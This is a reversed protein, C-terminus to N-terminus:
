DGMSKSSFDSFAHFMLNKAVYVFDEHALAAIRVYM